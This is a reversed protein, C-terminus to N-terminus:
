GGSLSVTVCLQVRILVNGELAEGEGTPDGGAYVKLSSTLDTLDHQAGCVGGM